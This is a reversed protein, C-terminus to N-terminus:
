SRFKQPLYKNLTYYLPLGLVYVVVLQGLGVSGISMWLPLGAGLHLVVGGVVFANILVVPLVAIPKPLNRMWRTLLAAILTALSGFVIDLIGMGGLLNSLLCGIFLGPVAEPMLLPLVTLAESIRFQVDGYSFTFFAMCLVAYVAAILGGRVIRRTTPSHKM